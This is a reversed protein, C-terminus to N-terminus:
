TCKILHSLNCLKMKINSQRFFDYGQVRSKESESLM